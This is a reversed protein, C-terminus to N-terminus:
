ETTCGEESQEVEESEEEGEEAKEEIQAEAEEKRLLLVFLRM